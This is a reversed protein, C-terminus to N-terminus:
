ADVMEDDAVTGLSSAPTLVNHGQGLDDWNGQELDRVLTALHNRSKVLKEREVQLDLRRQTVGEDEEMLKNCKIVPDDAGGILGLEEALYSEIVDEFEGLFNGATTMVINEAFRRAATIYYGRVYGSLILEREFQEAPLDTLKVAALKDETTADRELDKRISADAQDKYKKTKRLNSLLHDRKRAINRVERISAMQENENHERVSQSLNFQFRTELDLLGQNLLRQRNGLKAILALMLRESASYLPTQQWQALHNHLHDFVMKHIAEGLIQLFISMPQRWHEISQRILDRGAEPSVQGKLDVESYTDIINAIDILRWKQKGSGRCTVYPDLRRGGHGNLDLASLRQRTPTFPTPTEPKFSAQAPTSTFPSSDLEDDSDIPIVKQNQTVNVVLGPKMDLLVQCYDDYLRAIKNTFAKNVSNSGLGLISSRVATGFERLKSTVILLQDRSPLEPLLAIDSDIYAIREEIKAQHCPLDESFKKALFQSLFEQLRRTGFRSSAFSWEDCFPPTTAFFQMESERARPYYEDDFTQSIEVQPLKTIFNGYGLAYTRGRLREEWQVTIGSMIDPKTLVGVCKHTVNAKQIMEFITASEMDRDMAMACIILVKEKLLYYKVLNQIMPVLLRQEPTPASNIVGPLDVFSLAPLGPGGIEVKVVNPSFSASQRSDIRKMSHCFNASGPVFRSLDHQPNLIAQQAWVMAQLLETKDCITTFHRTTATPLMVWPSKGSGVKVPTNYGHTEVISIKCSWTPEPSTIVHAPCRTCTGSGKPLHIDALAGMLSSKGASQDGVLVLQPLEVVNEDLDLEGLQKVANVLLTVHRGCRQLGDEDNVNESDCVGDLQMQTNRQKKSPSEVLGDEATGNELQRKAKPPMTPLLSLYSCTRNHTKRIHSFSILSHLISTPTPETHTLSSTCSSYTYLFSSLPLSQPTRPYLRLELCVRLFSCFFLFVLSRVLLTASSSLGSNGLTLYHHRLNHQGLSAENRRTSTQKLLEVNSSRQMENVAGSPIPRQVSDSSM